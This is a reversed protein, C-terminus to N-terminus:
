VVEMLAQVQVFSWKSSLFQVPQRLHVQLFEVKQGLELEQELGQRPRSIAVAVVLLQGVVM